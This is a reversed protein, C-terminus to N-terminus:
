LEKERRPFLPLWPEGNYVGNKWILPVTSTPTNRYFVTLKGSRGYGLSREAKKEDTWDTKDRFLQVGIEKAMERAQEIDRRHDFVGSALNFCGVTEEAWALCDPPNMRLGLSQTTKEIREKGDRFGVCTLVNLDYTMFIPLLEQRIRVGREEDLLRKERPVGSMEQLISSIQKGSAFNDDVFVIESLAPDELELIDTLDRARVRNRHNHIVGEITSIIDNSSETALGLKTIVLDKATKSLLRQLLHDFADEVRKRSWYDIKMFMKFALDVRKVTKFRRLWQEIRELNVSEKEYDRFGEAIRDLVVRWGSIYNDVLVFDIDVLKRPLDAERQLLDRELEPDYTSQQTLRNIFRINERLYENHLQLLKKESRPIRVLGASVLDGFLKKEILGSYEQKTSALRAIEGKDFGM